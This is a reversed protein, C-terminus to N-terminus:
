NSTLGNKLWESYYALREAVLRVDHNPIVVLRAADAQLEGAMLYLGAILTSNRPTNAIQIQARRMAAALHRECERSKAKTQAGDSRKGDMNRRDNIYSVNSM